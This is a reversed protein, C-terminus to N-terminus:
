SRPRQLPAGKRAVKRFVEKLEMEALPIRQPSGGDDLWRVLRITDRDIEVGTIDGDAYCCCGTNFYCPQNMAFGHASEPVRAFELRARAAAIKEPDGGRRAGRLDKELTKLGKGAILGERGFFVPHHTHGAVLALGEQQVAWNYLAVNQRMRLKWDTSPTNLNIATRRQLPRWIHRVVFKMPGGLRDGELTGQHGHVLLVRGVERDGERVILLQSEHVQIGSFHPRLHRDVLSEFRWDDDHNGWVRWYRHEDHYTKELQLTTRYKELVPAPEDEWLEEADGLIGLAFGKEYYYGLAAHYPSQAASFDDAGDRVGKHHDSFLVLRDEGVAFEQARDAARRYAADLAQWVHQQYGKSPFSM